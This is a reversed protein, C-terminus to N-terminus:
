RMLSLSDKEEEYKDSQQGNLTLLHDLFKHAQDRAYKIRNIFRAFIM